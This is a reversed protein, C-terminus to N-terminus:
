ELRREIGVNLKVKLVLNTQMELQNIITERVYLVFRIEIEVVCNGLDGCRCGNNLYIWEGDGNKVRGFLRMRM